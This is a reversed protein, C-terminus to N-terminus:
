IKPFNSDPFANSTVRWSRVIDAAYFAHTNRNQQETQVTIRKRPACLYSHTDAAYFAHTNRNQQETQVTIRKRPTCLYSHTHTQQTSQMLTETRSRPKCRSERARLVCIPTHTQRSRLNCSHKPEAARNAGHNEQASTCLYSHTDTQQTSHMLTETRSSPKCRSERARLVCIPTHTQRSRLNCSHKPEAARNAGHNEQASTCLYSHTDTQQTSHM